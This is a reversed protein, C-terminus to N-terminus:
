LGQRAPRFPQTGGPTWPLRRHRYRRVLVRIESKVRYAPFVCSVMVKRTIMVRFAGAFDFPVIVPKGSARTARRSAPAVRKEIRDVREFGIGKAAGFACPILAQTFEEVAFAALNMADEELHPAFGNDHQTHAM